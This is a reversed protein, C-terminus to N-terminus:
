TASEASPVVPPTVPLSTVGTLQRVTYSRAQLLEVVSGDGVLHGAGVAIFARGDDIEEAINPIWRRNRDLLILEIM